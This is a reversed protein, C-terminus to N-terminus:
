PIQTNFRLRSFRLQQATLDEDVLLKVDVIESGKLIPELRPFVFATKNPLKLRAARARINNRWEPNVRTGFRDFVRGAATSDGKSKITQLRVLLDGVGHRAKELDELRLYYNGDQQIVRTGYDQNAKEGGELLYGLILQSGRQHAERVFDDDYMRYRNIQGQLYTLYM